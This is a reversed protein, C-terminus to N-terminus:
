YLIEKIFFSFPVNGIIEIRYNRNSLGSILHTNLFAEFLNRTRKAKGMIRWGGQHFKVEGTFSEQGKSILLVDQEYIEKGGDDWFGTFQGVTESDVPCGGIALEESDLEGGNDAHHLYGYSWTDIDTLGRFKIERM